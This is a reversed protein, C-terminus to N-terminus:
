TAMEAKGKREVVRMIASRARPNHEVEAESARVPKGVITIRIKHKPQMIPLRAPLREDASYGRAEDRMFNKVIRDELSHFSIVVLRGGEKLVDLVYSLLQQLDDLERNIFIRIAQFVRTAPHKYKEWAPNADSVIKALQATTEIPKIVRERAIATAIRKAFREEGYDRFVKTMEEVSASAIWAKASPHSQPNMRMDLPGDQLFSFGRAADDLQPSSVGLDLLVGSIKGHLNKETLIKDLESFSTHYVSFRSDGGFQQKAVAIAEPDKDLAILMGSSNLRELIARTHGGRGFTADIYIGGRDVVLADVAEQLLVTQHSLGM